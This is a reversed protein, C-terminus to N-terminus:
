SLACREFSIVVERTSVFSSRRTRPLMTLKAKQKYEHITSDHVSTASGRAISSEDCEMGEERPPHLSQEWGGVGVPKIAPM